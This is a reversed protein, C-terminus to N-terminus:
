LIRTTADEEELGGDGSGIECGEADLLISWGYTDSGHYESWPLASHNSM